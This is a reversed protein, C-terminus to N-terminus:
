NSDFKKKLYTNFLFSPSLKKLSSFKIANCKLSYFYMFIKQLLFKKKKQMFQISNKEM